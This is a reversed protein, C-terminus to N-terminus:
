LYAAKFKLDIRNVRSLIHQECRSYKSIFWSESNLTKLYNLYKRFSGDYKNINEQKYVETKDEHLIQTLEFSAHGTLMIESVLLSKGKTPNHREETNIM